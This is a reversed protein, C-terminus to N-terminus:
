HSFGTIEDMATKLGPTKHLDIFERNLEELQSMLDPKFVDVEIGAERLKLFGIGLVTRNPDLTGIVVRKFRRGIVREVCPKKPHNRETCPELTTYLTLGALTATKLKRELLTYEAHEGPNIEGRYAEDLVKGSQDVVVAGVM